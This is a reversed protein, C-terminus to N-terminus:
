ELRREMLKLADGVMWVQHNPKGQKLWNVLDAKVRNAPSILSVIYWDHFLNLEYYICQQFLVMRGGWEWLQEQREVEGFEQFRLVPRVSHQPKGNRVWQRIVNFGPDFVDVDGMQKSQTRLGTGVFLNHAVSEFAIKHVARSLFALAKQDYDKSKRITRVEKSENPQGEIEYQTTLTIRNTSVEAEIHAIRHVGSPSHKYTFQSDIDRLGLIAVQTSLIPEDILRRELKIGFHENCKDCVVGMPLVQEAINGICKPLVHSESDFTASSPDRLCWICQYPIPELVM